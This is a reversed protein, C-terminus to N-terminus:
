ELGRDDFPELEATAKRGKQTDHPRRATEGDIAIQDHRDPWLAAIWNEFCPGFLVPDIPNVLTRLWRVRPTGFHFASFLFDLHEGYAIIDDFDARSAM